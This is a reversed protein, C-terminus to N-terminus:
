EHSVLKNTGCGIIRQQKTLGLTYYKAVETKLKSDFTIDTKHFLIFTM